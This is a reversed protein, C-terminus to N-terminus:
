SPYDKQPENRPKRFVKERWRKYIDKCWHPLMTILTDISFADIRGRFLDSIRPQTMNLHEAVTEADSEGAPYTGHSRDGSGLPVFIKPKRLNPFTM